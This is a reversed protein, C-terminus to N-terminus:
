PIFVFARDLGRALSVDKGYLVQVSYTTGPDLGTFTVPTYSDQDCPDDFDQDGEVVQYVGEGVERVIDPEWCGYNDEMYGLLDFDPESVAAFDYTSESSSAVFLTFSSYGSFEVTLAAMADDQGEITSGYVYDGNYTYDTHEWGIGTYIAWEPEPGGEFHETWSGASVWPTVSVSVSLDRLDDSLTASVTHRKGASLTFAGSRTYTVSVGGVTVTYTVTLTCQGPIASFDATSSASGTGSVASSPAPISVSRSGNRATWSGSAADYTGWSPVSVSIAQIRTTAGPRSGKLTVGSISGLIHGFTMPVPSTANAVNKAAAVIYDESGNLPSSSSGVPIRVAGGSVSMSVNPLVGYFSLTGTAPWCRGSIVQRSGSTVTRANDIFLSGDSRLATCTFGEATTRESVAKTEVDLCPETM